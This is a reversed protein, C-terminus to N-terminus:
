RALNSCGMLRVSVGPKAASVTMGRRCPSARHPGPNRWDSTKPIGQVAYSGVEGCILVLGEVASNNENPSM